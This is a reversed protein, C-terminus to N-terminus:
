LEIELGDEALLLPTHLVGRFNEWAPYLHSLLVQRPKARAVIRELSALDLHGKVKQEPFSCEVVLLDVGRALRILNASYDTDGSFVVARDEEIRVGISERNHSMRATRIRLGEWEWAGAQMSKLTLEYGTPMVWRWARALRAVFRELGPGGLITLPKSRQPEGYNCAFLFTVLDATHDPHFHTLVVLDIDNVTLGTELLRRVVSPGLDILINRRAAQILYSSSARRLSPTATGTGLITLNMMFNHAAPLM